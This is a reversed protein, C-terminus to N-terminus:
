SDTLSEDGLTAPPTDAEDSRSPARPLPQAEATTSGGRNPLRWRSRMAAVLDDARERPAERRSRGPSRGNGRGTRFHPGPWGSATGVLTLLSPVLLSRVILVDLGIGVTMALALERFARLPILALFGFSIALTIGAAAIARTSAPMAVRIAEPLARDRAEAWVQSVGFINYDSGFAVLLVAAAFPVYFTLGENGRLDQFVWTTTGLAATVALVSSALLYLPAVLARLFVILLALNVVLAAVAIRSLDDRTSRVLGEALATDGALSASMGSLESRRLLDPLADRLRGIDEIAGAELPDHELVILMRAAGGSSALFVGLQQRTLNQAPGVVAAVGPQSEILRQLRILADIDTAAGPGEVLVTTPSTIGPAFAQAAVDSARKVANDGPLSQTFGVGLRAHTLPWSAVALGAVCMLTVVVAGVKTTVRRVVWSVRGPEAPPTWRAGYAIDPVSTPRPTSPWFVRPGLISLVAPVFTISVAVGVLVSLAMPPGLSRFFDSRAALLASTGAAVAIGAAIVIPTFSGVAEIQAEHWGDGARRRAALASIYFITYDTVIGLLLAVLLPELEAPVAIGLLVGVIGAIRLTVLFALAAGALGVLPAVASRFNLGVLLIIAGVTALELIHVWQGLLRAQEARAPISGAVGVVHDSPKDLFTDIYRQAAAQQRFFSSTPEMFLYTLVATGREYSSPFLPLGNTIPLAGLLPYPQPNQDVSIADLVSEAQTYLSLGDPDHQVVATRSSLPFGFQQVSRVEARIAPSDLPIVSALQDGGSGFAPAAVTAVGVLAIWSLIVWWRRRQIWQAYRRAALEADGTRFTASMRRLRQVVRSM